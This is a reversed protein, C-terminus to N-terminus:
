VLHVRLEVASPLASVETRTLRVVAASIQEMAVPRGDTEVRDIRYVGAEVHQPNVYVVSLRKGAFSFIVRAEGKEDFEKALLKPALVLDGLEGRAGYVQTLVTLVYWSAAGTLFHYMGRGLSDFYEPVGPYIRARQPHASMEYLSRLVAHGEQAFGQKYLGYAYMVCMHSFVAGNEKTGYAFGFSRGFSAYNRLGFDTNLRYGGLEKDKLFARVAKVVDRIEEGQALGTMVPFVQGTLTMWVRGDKKGEVRVGDNDYYGNFWTLTEGNCDVSVKEQTRIFAFAWEGKRRLDNVLAATEVEATEGSLEPQVHRLYDEFLRSKKANVDDYPVPKAMTDLLWLIEKALRVSQLGKRRSVAEILDALQLLNGAYFSMFAVSEGRKFAMDLGDNWDASELRTINHEGVNFFQVLNEVLIHELVTGRYVNGHKDKLQNGYAAKWDAYKEFSRTMQMDRFYTVDEFLIDSDGSQNIYLLTTLFPWAGHDMWVRTISNRDATFEGPNAGIITANSGDIRVGSFNNLLSQRVEAPEILILSLLDQWIDRWGKGGKGYDHDPLFSCGFIRRLIPQLTVWRM